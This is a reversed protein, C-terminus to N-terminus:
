KYVGQVTSNGYLVPFIVDYKLVFIHPVYKAMDALFAVPNIFKMLFKTLATWHFQSKLITHGMTRFSLYSHRRSFGDSQSFVAVGRLSAPPFM